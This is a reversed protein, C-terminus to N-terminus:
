VPAHFQPAERRDFMGYDRVIRVRRHRFSKIGTPQPTWREGADAERWSALLLFKGPNYISEFVEHEAPGVAAGQPMAASALRLADPAAPDVVVETLTVLKAGGAETTDFRQQEVVSGSPPASDFVIEGVRLHYDAFVEGRGKRQVAHHEGQSRWRAVAIDNRWISLSLIKGATSKSAFRENDIFGETAELKPKLYKALELYEDFRGERPQVEFIVAFM